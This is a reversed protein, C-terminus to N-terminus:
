QNILKNLDNQWLKYANEFADIKYEPKYVKEVSNNEFAEELTGFHGVGFGSGKAAGIAGTSDMVKIECNLLNSITSSFITSQFLNDNGVKIINTNLGLEKLIRFGYVFSFAIGELSARFLHAKTHNNFQLNNIQAGPSINNLMREAGNGFPIIRLGESGTPISNAMSEMDMYSLGDKGMQNKIWSYQIGAGNICLLLGIRPDEKTHNVHAFGNIRSEKDFTYQDSIGYIVGSTGGTAAVQGPHLVGLSMANNPQDGARYSVLTNVSLGTTDSAIHSVKGQEGFTDTIEPLLESDIEYYDLLKEALRNEDFDWYVGESLGSITTKIEGTLKMAIYDGPLMAKYINQYLEPENDKVWKLKSATFNGPSNLYHTLCYERGLTDFAEEGLSVARSDCWIISPRLVDHNKDVLVLGHMQYSIGISKIDSPDVSTKKLLIKTAECICGWWLEPDQEAWGPNKSEMSMEKEPFQVLAISKNSEADVLAVKISSSGIDYGLLYM